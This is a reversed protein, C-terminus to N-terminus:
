YSSTTILCGTCRYVHLSSTTNLCGTCTYVHVRYVHVTAGTESVRSIDAHLHCSCSHRSASQSVPANCNPGSWPKAPGLGYPCWSLIKPHAMDRGRGRLDLYLTQPISHQLSGWRPRPHLGLPFRIQHMNAKFHSM